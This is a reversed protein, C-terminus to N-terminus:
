IELKLGYKTEFEAVSENIRSVGPLRRKEYLKRSALCQGVWHLSHVGGEELTEDGKERDIRWGGYLHRPKTFVSICHKVTNLAEGFSHKRGTKITFRTMAITARNDFSPIRGRGGNDQESGIDVHFMWLVEIEDQLQKMLDKNTSSPIWQGCHQEVSDWGSLLFIYSPDGVQTLFYAPRGSFMQQNNKGKHLNAILTPSPPKGGRVHLLAVETVAMGLNRSRLLAIKDHKNSKIGKDKKSIRKIETTERVQIPRCPNHM